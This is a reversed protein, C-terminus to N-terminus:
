RELNAIREHDLAVVEKESSADHAVLKRHHETSGENDNDDEPVRRPKDNMGPLLSPLNNSGRSRGRAIQLSDLHDLEGPTGEKLPFSCREPHVDSDSLSFIPQQTQGQISSGASSERM